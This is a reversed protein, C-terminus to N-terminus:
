GGTRKRIEDNANQSNRVKKLKQNGFNYTATFTVQTNYQNQKVINYYGNAQRSDIDVKNQGLVDSAEVLFTWDNWIKKLSLDLSQLSGLKGFEIEQSSLYFYKLGFYWDKKSSLRIDNNFQVVGFTTKKDLVFAPFVDGTIPDTDVIGKFINHNVTATYNANWIGKFFMKQMGITLGFEQKDGYNTRIYRLETVGDMKRQLPIQESVDTIYSHNLVVFYSNKLMYNLEQNYYTSAKMFPNNQVYNNETLYMRTPNLQWFSPRRVRSSFAYSLNNNKNISYNVSLYPLFSNYNRDFDQAKGLVEGNSKTMELRSGIKGSLKESFSKELTAYFGIINEHYVFHNSQEADIGTPPIISELTVDNDTKTKNFNGGFSLTTENKFKQIYDAMFGYNNIIQPIKQQFKRTINQSDFDTTVNVNEQNRQYTLYASNLVLKSGLDDVKWEYNLNFSHNKTRSDEVNHTTTRNITNKTLDRGENYLDSVSNLSWNFRNNYSFGLNQKASIEYDLNLYGGLNLNPDTITGESTQAFTQDGNGLQYYQRETWSGLNLNGSGSLKGKRFNASIGSSPNNFYGQNNAMKLTGNVGDSMKKKMIINIIGDNSEVQFESSPVTIVEIKSIDESPTSKLMAIIAEADMNSKKGNIFITANNKGLIKLTKDDTSSVMPTDKLLDFSNTGKAIPSNAVDFILRDSKKQFVKKTMSIEQINQTKVSDNKPAEQAFAVIGSLFSLTILLKKM